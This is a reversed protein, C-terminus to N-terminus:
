VGWCDKIQIFNKNINIAKESKGILTEVPRDGFRLKMNVLKRKPYIKKAVEKMHIKKLNRYSYRGTSMSATFLLLDVAENLTIFFRIITNELLSKLTLYEWVVSPYKQAIKFGNILVIM